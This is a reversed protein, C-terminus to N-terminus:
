LSKLGNDFILRITSVVESPSTSYMPQNDESLQLDISFLPIPAKLQDNKKLEEETYFTNDVHNSDIVTVHKPLFIMIAEVFRSVSSKTMFLLTDQMMFKVSTLFKKLKGMEYTEKSTENLNFWSKGTTSTEQFNSKIIEKIKNVWGERL